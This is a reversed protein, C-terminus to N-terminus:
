NTGTSGFGGEGRDSEELENVKLIEVDPLKCVVGQAIRMGRTITFDETGFNYVIAKVEGRYNCDVTGPTNAITVRSKITLGSRPRIQLEYGKPLSCYFGLSITALDGPKIIYNKDSPVNAKLDYGADDEHAKIPFLDDCGEMMKVKFTPVVVSATSKFLNSLYEKIKTLM